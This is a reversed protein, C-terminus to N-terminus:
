RALLVAIPSTRVVAASNSGLVYDTIRKRGTLLALQKKINAVTEASDPNNRKKLWSYVAYKSVKRKEVIEAVPIGADALALIEKKTNESYAM